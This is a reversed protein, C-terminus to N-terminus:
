LTWIKLNTNNNNLFIKIKKEELGSAVSIVKKGPLVFHSTSTYVEKKEFIMIQAYELEVIPLMLRNMRIYLKYM